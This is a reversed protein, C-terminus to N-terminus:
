KGFPLMKNSPTQDWLAFFEFRRDLSGELDSGYALLLVQRLSQYYILNSKYKGTINKRSVELFLKQAEGPLM